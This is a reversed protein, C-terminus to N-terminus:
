LESHSSGMSASTAVSAAGPPLHSYDAMAFPRKPKKYEGLPPIAVDPGFDLDIAHKGGDAKGNDEQCYSVGGDDAITDCRGNV